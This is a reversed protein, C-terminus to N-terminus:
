GNIKKMLKLIDELERIAFEISKKEVNKGALFSTLVTLPMTLRNRIEAELEKKKSIKAKLM